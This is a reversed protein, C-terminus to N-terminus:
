YGAAGDGPAAATLIGYVLGSVLENHCRMSESAKRQLVDHTEAQSKGSTAAVVAHYCDALEQQWGEVIDIPDLQFLQPQPPVPSAAVTEPGGADAM